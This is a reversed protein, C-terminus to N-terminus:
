SIPLVQRYDPSEDSLARRHGLARVHLGRVSSRYLACGLDACGYFALKSGDPSWAPQLSYIDVAIHHGTGDARMVDVHWSGRTHYGSLAIRSGDPSWAPDREIIGVTATIQLRNSGDANMMWADSGSIFAIRSGDPSWTPQYDFGDAPSIDHDGSGDAGIIWIHKNWAYAIRNGEPSWSAGTVDGQHNTLNHQDTGDPDMVWVDSPGFSASAYRTWAIRTGDPSWEPEYDQADSRTLRVQNGGHLGMTWIDGNYPDGDGRVFVIAAPSAVAGTADAGGAVPEAALSAVLALPICILIRATSRWRPKM